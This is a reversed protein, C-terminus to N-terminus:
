ASAHTGEPAAITLLQRLCHELLLHPFGDSLVGARAAAVREPDVPHDHDSPPMQEGYMRVIMRYYPFTLGAM